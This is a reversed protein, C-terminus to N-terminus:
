PFLSPGEVTANFEDKVRVRISYSSANVEMRFRFQLNGSHPDRDFWLRRPRSRVTRKSRLSHHKRRRTWEGVLLDFNGNRCGSRHRQIRRGGVVTGIPQNEAIALPATFNLDSPASESNKIQCFMIEGPNPAFALLAPFRRPQRQLRFRDRPSTMPTFSPGSRNRFQRRRQQSFRGRRLHDRHEDDRSAPHPNSRSSRPSTM